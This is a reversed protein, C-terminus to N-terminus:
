GRERDTLDDEIDPLDDELFVQGACEPQESAMMVEQFLPLQGEYETTNYRSAKSRKVALDDISEMDDKGNEELNPIARQQTHSTKKQRSSARRNLAEISEFQQELTERVSEELEIRMAHLFQVSDSRHLALERRLERGTKEIEKRERGPWGILMMALLSILLVVIVVLLVTVMM